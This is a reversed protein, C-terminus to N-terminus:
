GQKVLEVDGARIITREGSPLRLVLAGDEALGDFRGEITSGSVTTKVTGDRGEAHDCWDDRTTSFDDLAQQYRGAFDLRLQDLVAPADIGPGAGLGRLCIADQGVGEPATEVNVGIGVVAWVVGGTSGSEVLIGSLKRGEERVDNPWKLQPKASPVLALVTDIVALGAVFPLKMADSLGAPPVVLCSAFLNGAPSSWVRGLRGRGASQRRAAIWQAHLPSTGAIRKAEENTSDIDEHWLVPLSQSM